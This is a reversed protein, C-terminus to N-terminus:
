HSCLVSYTHLWPPYHSPYCNSQPPFSATLHLLSTQKSFFLLQAQLNPPWQHSKDSWKWYLQPSFTSQMPQLFFLFNIRSHLCSKLFPLHLLEERPETTVFRVLIWSSTPEIGSGVWLALSGEGGHVTTYTASAARIHHQHPQPWRESDGPDGGYAVPVARFFLLHIFLYIFFPTSLCHPPPPM